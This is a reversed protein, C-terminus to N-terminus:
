QQGATTPAPPVVSTGPNVGHHAFLGKIDAILVGVHASELDTALKFLGNLIFAIDM